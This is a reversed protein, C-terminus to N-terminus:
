SLPPLEDWLFVDMVDLCLCPKESLRDCLADIM